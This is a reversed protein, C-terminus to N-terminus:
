ASSPMVSSCSMAKVTESSWARWSCTQSAILSLQCFSGYVMRRMSVSVVTRAESLRASKTPMSGILRRAAIHQAIEELLVIAAPELVRHQEVPQRALLQLGLRLGDGGLAPFPDLDRHIEGIAMGAAHATQGAGGDVQGILLTGLTLLETILEVLQLRLIGLGLFQGVLHIRPEPLDLLRQLDELGPRHAIARVLHRPGTDEDADAVVALERDLAAIDAGVILSHFTLVPLPAITTRGHTALRSTHLASDDRHAARRGFGLLVFLKLADPRQGIPEDALQGRMARQREAIGHRRVRMDGHRRQQMPQDGIAEQRM